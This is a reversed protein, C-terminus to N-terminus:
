KQFGSSSYQTDGIGEKRGDDDEPVANSHSRGRGVDMSIVNGFLSDKFLLGVERASFFLGLRQVFALGVGDM